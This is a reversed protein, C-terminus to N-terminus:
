QVILKRIQISNGNLVRLIYLGDPLGKLNLQFRASETLIWNRILQGNMDILDVKAKGDIRINKITVYNDAPNPYIDIAQVIEPQNIGVTDDMQNYFIFNEVDWNSVVMDAYPSYTYHLIITDNKPININTSIWNKGPVFCYEQFAMLTSNHYVTQLHEIPKKSTYFISASDQNVVITDSIQITREKGLDSFLIAEVVSENGSIYVTTDNFGAATGYVIKIPEWWGGTILDLQNDQNLDYLYVGSQYNWLPSEWAAASSSPLTENDFLYAKMKGDGGIQNNNSFIVDPFGNNDIAGIDLSNVLLEDEQTAWESTTSISGSSDSIYIKSKFGNNGFVIDTFGDKNFDGFDVDYSCATDNTKWNATDSFFGNDNLFIRGQDYINNYSEGGTAAIDLDGDNDADGLACSFTYFPESIFSPTDSIGEESNFYIKLKGPESFGAEGIYVSVVIDNWGNKDLDGVALHGHYDIDDSEWDPDPTFTGNGQNYYIQVRDRIIDNGNAVIIDKWGDNNMDAIGLGTGYKGEDSFLFDPTENFYEFQAYLINNCTFLLISLIFLSKIPKM